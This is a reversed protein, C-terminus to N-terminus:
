FRLVVRLFLVAERFDGLLLLFVVVRALFGLLRVVVRALASRGGTSGVGVKHALKGRSRLNSM